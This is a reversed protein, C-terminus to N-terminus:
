LRRNQFRQMLEIFVYPKAFVNDYSAAVSSAVRSSVTLTQRRVNLHGTLRVQEGRILRGLATEEATHSPVFFTIEIWAIRFHARM